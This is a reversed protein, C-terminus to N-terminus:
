ELDQSFTPFFASLADAGHLEHPLLSPSLPLCVSFQICKISHTLVIIRLDETAFLWNIKKGIQM